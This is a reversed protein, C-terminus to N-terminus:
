LGLCIANFLTSDSVKAGMEILEFVEQERPKMYQKTTTYIHIDQSINKINSFDTVTTFDTNTNKTELAVLVVQNPQCYFCMIETPTIREVYKVNRMMGAYVVDSFSDVMQSANHPKDDKLKIWDDATVGNLVLFDIFEKELGALDEESLRKFLM